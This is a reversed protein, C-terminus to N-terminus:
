INLQIYIYTYTAYIYIYVYIQIYLYSMCRRLLSAEVVNYGKQDPNNLFFVWLMAYKGQWMLVSHGGGGTGNALCFFSKPSAVM